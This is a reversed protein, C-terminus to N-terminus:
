FFIHTKNDEEIELNTPICLKMLITFDYLHQHTAGNQM